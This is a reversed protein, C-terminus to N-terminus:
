TATWDAQGHRMVLSAIAAKCVTTTGSLAVLGM